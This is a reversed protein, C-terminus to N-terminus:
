DEVLDPLDEETIDYRIIEELTPVLMDNSIRIHDVINDMLAYIHANTLKNSNSFKLSVTDDIISSSALDNFNSYETGMLQNVIDLAGAKNIAKNYAPNYNVKNIPLKSNQEILTIIRNFSDNSAIKDCYYHNVYNHEMSLLGQSRLNQIYPYSWSNKEPHDTPLPTDLDVGVERLRNQVNLIHEPTDNIEKLSINNSISYNSAIGAAQGLAIGVPVTRASSHAISDYGASRGVVLLNSIDKPLMIGFPITYLNRGTLINGGTFDRKTAQLDTPYSGYAVKNSFNRNTFVDDSTLADEGVIRVGERIYLEDATRHLVANEFGPANARLFNIVNPLDSVALFYAVNKSSEDLSDVDFVQLANIVVSDDKQRSMNLRRLQIRPSQSNYELMQPYGWAVGPNAGTYISNDSNLYRTVALWDVGSVSFVLTAAAYEDKVGLDDRGVVYGAGAKRAFKADLSADIVISSFADYVEGSKTYSVGRVTKGDMIPEYSTVSRVTSVKNNNLLNNFYQETHDIDFSTNYAVRSYFESFFGDNVTELSNSKKYNMDLMSLMGSTYLGGVRYRSDILLVSAGERAASVAASIGEPDSGVVIVDYAAQKSTDQDNASCVTASTLIILAILTIRKIYKM